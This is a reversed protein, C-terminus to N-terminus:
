CEPFRLRGACRSKRFRQSRRWNETQWLRFGHAGHQIRRRDIWGEILPVNTGLFFFPLDPLDNPYAISAALTPDVEALSAPERKVLHFFATNLPLPVLFGLQVVQGCLVILSFFLASDATCVPFLGKPHRTSQSPNTFDNHRLGGAV